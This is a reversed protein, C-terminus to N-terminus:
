KYNSPDPGDDKPDPTKDDPSDKEPGNKMATVDDEGPIKLYNLSQTFSFGYSVPQDNYERNTGQTAIVEEKSQSERFKTIAAAFRNQERNLTGKDREESTIPYKSWAGLKKREPEQKEEPLKSIFIEAEQQAKQIYANRKDNERAVKYNQSVSLGSIDGIPRPTPSPGQGKLKRIQEDVKRIEEAIPDLIHDLPEKGDNKEEVM